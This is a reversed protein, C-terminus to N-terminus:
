IVVEREWVLGKLSDFCPSYGKLSPTPFLGKDSSKLRLYTNLAQQRAQKTIM